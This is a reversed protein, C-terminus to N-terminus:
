SAATFHWYSLETPNLSANWLKIPRSIPHTKDGSSAFSTSLVTTTAIEITAFPTLSHPADASPTQLRISWSTYTSSQAPLKSFLAWSRLAHLAHLTHSGNAPAAIPTLSISLVTTVPMTCAFPLHLSPSSGFSRMNPPASTGKMGWSSAYLYKPRIIRRSPLPASLTFFSVPFSSTAKLRSRRSTLGDRFVKMIQESPRTM